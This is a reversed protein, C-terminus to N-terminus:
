QRIGYFTGDKQATEAVGAGDSRHSAAIKAHQYRSVLSEKRDPKQDYRYSARIAVIFTDSTDAQVEVANLDPLNKHFATLAALVQSPMM